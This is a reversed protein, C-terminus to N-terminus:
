FTYYAVDVFVYFTTRSLVEGFGNLYDSVIRLEYFGPQHFVARNYLVGLDGLQYVGFLHNVDKPPHFYARCGVTLSSRGVPVIYPKLHLFDTNVPLYRPISISTYQVKTYRAPCQNAQYFCQM